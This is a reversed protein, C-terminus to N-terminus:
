KLRALLPREMLGGHCGYISLAFVSMLAFLGTDAYWASLDVTIPFSRLVYFVFFGATLAVLGFRILIFIASGYFLAWFPLEILPRSSSFKLLTLLAVSIGGALWQRRVLIQLALMIFLNALSDVIAEPLCMLLQGLAQRAGLLSDLSPMWWATKGLGLNVIVQFQMVLTWATGAIVGFLLDTGVLQDRVRGALIRSWSVIAHPWRRRV